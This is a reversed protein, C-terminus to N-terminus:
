GQCPERKLVWSGSAHNSCRERATMSVRGQREPADVPEADCGTARPALIGGFVAKRLKM